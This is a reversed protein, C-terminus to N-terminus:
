IHFPKIQGRKIALVVINAIFSDEYVQYDFFDEENNDDPYVRVAYLMKSLDRSDYFNGFEGPHTKLHEVLGENVVEIGVTEVKM